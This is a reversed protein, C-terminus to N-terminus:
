ADRRDDEVTITLGGTRPRDHRYLHLTTIQSDDAWLLGNLADLAVKARNDLDGARRSRYWNLTVCVPQDPFPMGRIGARMVAARVEMKYAKAEASLYPRGRAVRWYRNTSPPEPLDLDVRFDVRVRM